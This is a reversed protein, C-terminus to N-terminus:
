KSWPGNNPDSQVTGISLRRLSRKKLKPRCNLHIFWVLGFDLGFNVRFEDECWVRQLRNKSCEPIASHDSFIILSMRPPRKPRFYAVQLGVGCGM